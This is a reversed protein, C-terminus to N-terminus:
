TNDSRGLEYWNGDAKCILTLTDTANMTFNTSGALFIYTGDTITITHESIITIIQGTVGGVLGIITTTGGTLWNSKGRVDPTQSNAFTGIAGGRMTLLGTENNHIISNTLTGSLTIRSSMGSMYASSVTGGVRCNLKLADLILTGTSLNKLSIGTSSPDYINSVHLNYMTINAHAYLTNTAVDLQCNSISWNLIPATTDGFYFGYDPRAGPEGRIGEICVFQSGANTTDVYVYSRGGTVGTHCYWLSGYIRFDNIGEFYFLDSGSGGMNYYQGGFIYTVASSSTVTQITQYTSTLSSINNNTFLMTKAGAYCNCFMCGYYNNVESGYSYVAAVTFKSTLSNKVNYFNHWGASAGTSKRALLFACKPSTTADGDVQLDRFILNQSATCDFVVGDFKGNLVTSTSGMTSGVGEIVMGTLINTADIATTIDGSTLIKVKGGVSKISFIAQTISAGYDTLGWWEPHVESITGSAFTVNGKSFGSFVQYLGVEFNGNITLTYTSAKVISGGHTIKLTLTSPITLSAILTQVNSVILTTPTSGIATVAANISAYSSADIGTAIFESWSTIYKYYKDEDKIYVIMGEKKTVFEWGTGTDLAIDGLNGSWAGGTGGVIYRKGKTHSPPTVLDKDEVPPQWEFNELAPSKYPTM